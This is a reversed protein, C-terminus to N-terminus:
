KRFSFKWMNKGMAYRWTGGRARYGVHDYVKGDYVLTGTWKYDHGGYQENWTSAEVSPKKGILHYVPLQELANSSFETPKSRIPDASGPEIAGRWPPIGDYVFYAFNPETDGVAPFLTTKGSPGTARVRYRILRRHKQLEAPLSAVFDDKSRSMAVSIWNTKYAPDGLEIYKGPDVVQYELSGSPIEAPLTATIQVIQGSRPQQPSHRVPDAERSQVSAALALAWGVLFLSAWTKTNRATRSQHYRPM